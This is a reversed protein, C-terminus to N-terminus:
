ARAVQRTWAQAHVAARHEFTRVVPVPVRERHIRTVAHVMRLLSDRPGGGSPMSDPAAWGSLIGAVAVDRTIGQRLAADGDVLKAVADAVDDTDFVTSIPAAALVASQAVM